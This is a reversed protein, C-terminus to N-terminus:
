WIVLELEKIVLELPEIALKKLLWTQNVKL